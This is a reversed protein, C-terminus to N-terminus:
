IGDKIAELTSDLDSVFMEEQQGVFNEQYQKITMNWIKAGIERDSVDICDLKCVEVTYNQLEENSLGQVFSM